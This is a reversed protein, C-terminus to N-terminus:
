AAGDADISLTLERGSDDFRYWAIETLQTTMGRFRQVAVVRVVRESWM